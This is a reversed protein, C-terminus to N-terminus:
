TPSQAAQVIDEALRHSALVRSAGVECHDPREVTDLVHKILANFGRREAVTDWSGFSIVRRGGAQDSLEARELDGVEASRGPGHIALREADAGVARAMAYSGVAAPTRLLGTALAFYGSADLRVDSAALAADEGLLWCMTDLVHILDDFVAERPTQDHLAARHKEMVAFRMGDRLWEQARLYIPAFRRNFGVALLLGAREARRVLDECDSLNSALPKDVYVNSGAALCASVVEHHATTAAHVFVLDPRVALLEELDTFLGKIRHRRGVQAVNEPSRSMVGVVEIDPWDLLLPLYLKRAIDGLGVIGIRM